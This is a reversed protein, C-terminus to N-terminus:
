RRSRRRSSSRRTSAAQRRPRAGTIVIANVTYRHSYLVRPAVCLRGGADVGRQGGDLVREREAERAGLVLEDAGLLAARWVEELQRHVRQQPALVARVLVGLLQQARQGGVALVDDHAGALVGAGDVDAAAEHARELDLGVVVGAGDLRELAGGGADAADQAVDEGDAGARDGHEVRQTEALRAVGAGALAPRGDGALGARRARWAGGASTRAVQEVAGDCPDAVVAVRDAHGGDAALHVELRGVLM